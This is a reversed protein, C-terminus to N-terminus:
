LASLGDQSSITVAIPTLLVVVLLATVPFFIRVSYQAFFQM